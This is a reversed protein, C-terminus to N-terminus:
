PVLGVTDYFAIKGGYEGKKTWYCRSGARYWENGSVNGTSWKQKGAGGGHSAVRLDEPM